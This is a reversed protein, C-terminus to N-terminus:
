PLYQQLAPNGPQSKEIRMKEWTIPGATPTISQSTAGHKGKWLVKKTNENTARVVDGKSDLTRMEGCDSWCKNNAANISIARRAATLQYTKTIQTQM